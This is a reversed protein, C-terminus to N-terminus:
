LLEPAFPPVSCVVTLPAKGTNRIQHTVGSPIFVVSGPRVDHWRDKIFVQGEGAHV